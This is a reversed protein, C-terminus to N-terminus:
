ADTIIPNELEEISHLEWYRDNFKYVFRCTPMVGEEYLKGDVFAKYKIQYREDIFSVYVRFRDYYEMQEAISMKEADEFEKYIPIEIEKKKM